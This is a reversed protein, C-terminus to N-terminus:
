REKENKINFRVAYIYEENQLREIIAPLRKDDTGESHKRPIRTKRDIQYIIWM